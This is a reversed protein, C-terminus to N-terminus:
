TMVIYAVLGLVAMVLLAVLLWPLKSPASRALLASGVVPVPTQARPQRPREAPKDAAKDAVPEPPPIQLKPSSASPSPVSFGRAPTIPRTPPDDDERDTDDDDLPVDEGEETVARKKPKEAQEAQEAPADAEAPPASLARPEKGSVEATRGRVLAHLLLAPEREVLVAVL